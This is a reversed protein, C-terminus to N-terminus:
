FTPLGLSLRVLVWLLYFMQSEGPDLSMNLTTTFSTGDPPTMTFSGYSDPYFIEDYFYYEDGSIIMFQADITTDTTNNTAIYATKTLFAAQGSTQDEGCTTNRPFSYDWKYCYAIGSVNTGDFTSDYDSYDDDTFEIDVGVFNPDQDQVFINYVTDIKLDVECTFDIFSREDLDINRTWHFVFEDGDDNVDSVWCIGRVDGRNLPYSNLFKVGRLGYDETIIIDGSKILRYASGGTGLPTNYLSLKNHRNIVM